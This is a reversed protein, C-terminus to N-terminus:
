KRLLEVAWSGCLGVLAVMGFQNYVGRRRGAPEGTSYGLFYHIRGTIWVLGAVATPVPYRLGAIFNLVLFTPLQELCNQHGRQVCNFVKANPNSSDAYLAPYPVKMVRGAMWGNVVFAAALGVGLVYGYERAVPLSSM